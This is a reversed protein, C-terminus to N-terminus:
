AAVNAAKKKVRVLNHGPADSMTGNDVLLQLEPKDMRQVWERLHEWSLHAYRQVMKLSSWGGLEQLVHLPTGNQVHWSAWTHRLDHWRFDTIGVVSLISRWAKTSTQHVPENRFTFVWRPHVDRWKELLQLAIDTLPIALAKKNKTKDGTVWATKRKLDIQNWELHTVNARRLGTQLSFEAMEALHEPLAAILKNADERTIWRIRSKSGKLSRIKPVRDIWEWEHCARNLLARFSTLFRNVTEVRPIAKRKQGNKYVM